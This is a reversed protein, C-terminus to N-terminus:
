APTAAPQKDGVAQRLEVMAGLIARVEDLWEPGVLRRPIRLTSATIRADTGYKRYLALRDFMASADAKITLLEGNLIVVTARAEIALLKLGVSALLNEVPSPLPGFRDRIEERLAKLDEVSSASALRRYLTLRETENGVYEQPLYMTLPIDLTVSPAEEVPVGRLQEVADSVMRTYLDFGIATAHGSQDAGLLNGAGRIELDKMAINFGAGLEQAEFVAELRRSADHSLHVDLPYLLYAYAQNASRGVRGRLQYLQTLGLTHANNMIITNVNPIDLGNEIITSSILVDAEHHAFQLMAAELQSEEMQGHAVIVRAEPVLRRVRQAMAEITAVKNHVFYVQGDRDLERLVAERVLRDDYPQLYTRIPLRGEPATEIVSVERIGVLTMNLTRPIPTATLTLVDISERLTKLREKHRVGFRQEEDVVLLGLKKFAVDKQLLRHTGILIDVEGSSTARLIERQEAKTRFRSLVEIRVPFASLRDSFTEFHQQALITTPVLVAVQKGEMVAKFAARVAVETKGYGVDACILRDMPRPAEMDAKVDEISQIQDQTEPYAFSSELEGQWPTDPGFAYGPRAMRKSYLDILEGAIEAAAAKARQRARQWEGGGLRSLQPASDGVGVYRTLRELQDTPVYVRDTGAFQVVAYERETDEIKMRTVGEFRGIGHELHVVYDGPSYSTFFADRATRARRRVARVRARGFLEHDTLFTIGEDPLRWGETLSVPVLSIGPDPAKRLEPLRRAEIREDDLLEALRDLQNTSIVTRGAELDRMDRVFDRLRGGYLKAPTFLGSLDLDDAGEATGGFLEVQRLRGISDRVVQPEVLPSKLDLPLNGSEELGHQVEQAQEWLEDLLRWTEHGTDVVVTASRPLQVALSGGTLLYPGFVPVDDISAGAELKALDDEWRTRAEANMTSTDAEMLSELAALRREEELKAIPTILLEHVSALSRQTVPDFSRLSEVENGFLELRIPNEEGAPFVDVVGGRRSFTGPEEVLANEAYGAAVWSRLLQDLLVRDGVSIVDLQESEESDHALPQLLARVPAVIIGADGRRLQQVVAERESLVRRDLAVREYPLAEVAPFHLVSKDIWGSLEEALDHATQPHATVMLIPESTAYALAAVVVPKAASLLGFVREQGSGSRIRAIPALQSVLETIGTIKMSPYIRVLFLSRPATAGRM